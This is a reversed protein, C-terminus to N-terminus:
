ERFIDFLHLNVSAANKKGTTFQVPCRGISVQCAFTTFFPPMKPFLHFCVLNTRFVGLAHLIARLELTSMLSRRFPCSSELVSWSLHDQNVHPRSLFGQQPVTDHLAYYLQELSFLSFQILGFAPFNKPKISIRVLNSEAITSCM